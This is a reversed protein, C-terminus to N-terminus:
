KIILKRMKMSFDIVSSIIVDFCIIVFENLIVVCYYFPTIPFNKVFIKWITSSDLSSNKYLWLNECLHMNFNQIWWVLLYCDFDRYLLLLVFCYSFEKYFNKLSIKCKYIFWLNIIKSHDLCRVDRIRAAIVFFRSSLSVEKAIMMATPVYKMSGCIIGLQYLAFILLLGVFCIIPGKRGGRSLLFSM